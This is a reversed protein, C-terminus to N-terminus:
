GEHPDSVPTPAGAADQLTVQENGRMPIPFVSHGGVPRYRRSSENGRMPIPFRGKLRQHGDRTLDENGRM